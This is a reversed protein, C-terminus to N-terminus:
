TFFSSLKIYFDINKIIAHISGAEGIPDRSLNKMKHKDGPSLCVQEVHLKIYLNVFESERSGWM